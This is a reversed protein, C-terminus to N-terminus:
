RTISAATPNPPPPRYPQWKRRLISRHADGEGKKRQWLALRAAPISASEQTSPLSFAGSNGGTSKPNAMGAM